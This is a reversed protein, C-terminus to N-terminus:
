VCLLSSVTNYISLYDTQPEYGCKTVAQVDWTSACCVNFASFLLELQIWWSHRRALDGLTKGSSIKFIVSIKHRVRDLSFTFVHSDKHMFQINYQHLDNFVIFKGHGCFTKHMQILPELYFVMVSSSIVIPLHSITVCTQISGEHFHPIEGQRNRYQTM